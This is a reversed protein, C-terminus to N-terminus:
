QDHRYRQYCRWKILELHHRICMNLTLKSNKPKTKIDIRKLDPLKIIVHLEKAKGEDELGDVQELVTDGTEVDHTIAAPEVAVDGLGPLAIVEPQQPYMGNSKRRLVVSLFVRNCIKILKETARLLIYGFAARSLSATESFETFCLVPGESKVLSPCIPPLIGLM